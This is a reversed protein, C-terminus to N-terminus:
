FRFGMVALKRAAAKMFWGVEVEATFNLRFYAALELLNWHAASLCGHPEAHRQPGLTLCVYTYPVMHVYVYLACVCVGLRNLKVKM